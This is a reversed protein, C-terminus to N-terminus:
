VIASYNKIFLSANLNMIKSLQYLYVAMQLGRCQFTPMPIPIPVPIPVLIVFAMIELEMLGISKPHSPWVRLIVHYKLIATVHCIFFTIDGSESPRCVGFKAPYHRLILLVYRCLWMVCWDVVHDRSLDFFKIDKSECPRHVGFKAPQHSLILPGWGCLWM